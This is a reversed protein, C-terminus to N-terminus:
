GGRFLCSGYDSGAAINIAVSFTKRMWWPRKLIIGSIARTYRVEMSNSILATGIHRKIGVVVYRSGYTAAEECCRGGVRSGDAEFVGRFLLDGKRRDISNVRGGLVAGM